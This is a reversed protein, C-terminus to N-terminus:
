SSPITSPYTFARSSHSGVQPPTPLNVSPVLTVVLLLALAKTNRDWVWEHDIQLNSEMRDVENM